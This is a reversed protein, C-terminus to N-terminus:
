GECLESNIIALVCYAFRWAGKGGWGGVVPCRGRTMARTAMAWAAKPAPRDAGSRRCVALRELDSGWGGVRRGGVYGRQQRGM